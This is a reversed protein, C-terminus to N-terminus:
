ANKFFPLVTRGHFASLLMALPIGSKGAMSKPWTINGKM